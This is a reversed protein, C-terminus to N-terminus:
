LALAETWMADIQAPTLGLADAVALLTPHLRQFTAADEWEIQAEDRQQGAPMAVIVGSVTALSIGNRVLTLRLQRKTVAPMAARLEDDTPPLPPVYPAIEYQGENVALWTRIFPNIGFTDEPISCYEWKERVGEMNTVDVDLVFCGEREEARVNEIAHITVGPINAIETEAEDTM